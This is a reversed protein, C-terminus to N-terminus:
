KSSIYIKLTKIEFPKFTLGFSNTESIKKVEEELMNVEYVESPSIGLSLTVNTYTGEAEYLRLIFSNQADECPKITEAIINSESLTVLPKIVKGNFILRKYNFEYSPQIVSEACFGSNHPLIAYEAYHLGKDGHYDPRTGGKHLSLRLSGDQVSIGYKCDNLLAIGYRNESIDTYKHNLTEFKAQELSNNRTTPRRIYGFQMDQRVFDSIIATDFCTKLFRHDDQWDMITEFKIMPSDSYFIMDQTLKSKETLLYENRIAFLVDGDSIICSNLLKACDKFKLVTDADIDWSDYMLPVDEAIVFCNFPLGNVLERGNSKDVLSKIYMREDFTVTLFPTELINGNLTFSSTKTKIEDESLELVSSSYPESVFGSVALYTKNDLREYVQSKCYSAYRGDFPLYLCDRREFSTTNLVTLKEQKDTVLDEMLRRSEIIVNGVATRAEDHVKPICTGPLIDHFQNVLLTEQLDRYEHDDPITGNECAKAVTIFELDHLAIEALRNNRKIEHQNTLTGRHLELYLEGNYTCPEYVTNELTKMFESVTSGVVKPCGEVDSLRRAMEIMEYQPGGGGDGYGYSILKKDSVAKQKIGDICSSDYILRHMDAPSPWIHTKNLHVLVSTGDIGRWYFTDYPFVNTDNWAMKTTLFYKISCCKMIQPISACYGFTDPLWFSDSSYNFNERTFRQGWVFQRIISEGSTLNCDCEVWVGGNPEYRSEAIRAKIREFLEPYHTKILKLHYASSQIFFYDEYQEMLSLQNSFTRACKKVTEDLGWLWCTDMHSHGIVYATPATESNKKNLAERLILSAKKISEAFIEKSVNDPSLYLVGNLKISTKVLDWKRFNDDGLTSLLENFIRFDFYFESIVPNKICIDFGKVPYTFNNNDDSFPQTGKVYHGAYMEVALDIDQGANVNQAIMGCYHNGHETVCIKYAFTGFPKGDVWLLGERGGVNPYLYLTQGKLNPPVTYRGSFWAYVGEEGWSENAEHFLNKAPLTYYQEKSEFIKMEVKDVKEFVMLSVTEEFRKFKELMRNIQKENLM